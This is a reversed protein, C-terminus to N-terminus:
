ALGPHMVYMSADLSVDDTAMFSDTDVIRFDSNLLVPLVPHPGPVCLLVERSTSGMHHLVAIVASASHRSQVAAHNFQLTGASGVAFAAVIDDGSRVVGAWGRPRSTWYEYDAARDVGSIEREAQAAVAAPAVAVDLTPEPLRAPQGVLYHLPWQPTLGCRTYLALAAPHASAFTMKPGGGPWVVDLLQRGIGHRHVRPAVFLDTLMRVGAVDISGAFGVPEGHVMALAMVGRRLVHTLYRPDGGVGEEDQGCARAAIVLDDIDDHTALRVVVNTLPPPDAM